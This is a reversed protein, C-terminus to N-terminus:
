KQQDRSSCDPAEEGSIERGQRTEPSRSVINCEEEREAQDKPRNRAFKEAVLREGLKTKAGSRVKDLFKASAADFHSGTVAGSKEWFSVSQGKGESNRLVLLEPASGARKM